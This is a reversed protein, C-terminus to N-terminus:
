DGGPYENWQMGTFVFDCWGSVGMSEQVQPVTVIMWLSLEMCHHLQVGDLDLWNDGGGINVGDDYLAWGFTVWEPPLDGGFFPGNVILHMPVTGQAHLMVSAVFGGWQLTDIPFLNNFFFRVHDDDWLVSDSNAILLLDPNPELKPNVFFGGDRFDYIWHDYVLDGTVLNKYVDDGNVRVIELDLSGTYVDSQIIVDDYWGAYGMGLAGLALVLALCLIGIKKMKNTEKRLNV